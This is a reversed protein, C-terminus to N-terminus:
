RADAPSPRSPKGPRQSALAAARSWTWSGSFGASNTWTGSGASCTSNTGTYTYSAACDSSGGTPNTATFTLAQGTQTGAVNWIGCSGTNASGSFPKAAGASGGGTFTYTYGFGDTWNGAVAGCDPAFFFGNTAASFEPECEGDTRGCVNVRFGFRREFRDGTAVCCQDHNLCEQTFRQVSGIGTDPGAAAGCRGLAPPAFCAPGVTVPDSVTVGGLVYTGTGAGGVQGCISTVAQTQPQRENSGINLPRGPPAVSLVNLLSFYAEGLRTSEEIKGASLALLRQFRALDTVTISVPKGETGSDSRIKVVQQRYDIEARIVTTPGSRLEFRAIDNDEMSGKFSIKLADLHGVLEASSQREIVIAAANQAQSASGAGVLAALVLLQVIRKLVNNEKNL